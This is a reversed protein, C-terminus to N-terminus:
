CFEGNGSINKIGWYIAGSRADFSRIYPQYTITIFRNKKKPKMINNYWIYLIDVKTLNTIVGGKYPPTM